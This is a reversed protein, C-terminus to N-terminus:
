ETGKLNCKAIAVQVKQNFAHDCITLELTEAANLISQLQSEDYCHIRSEITKMLKSCIDPTMCDLFALSCFLKSADYGSLTHVTELLQKEYRGVLIAGRNLGNTNRVSLSWVLHVFAETHFSADLHKISMEYMVQLVEPQIDVSQQTFGWLSLSIDHLSFHRARKLCYVQFKRLVSPAIEYRLKGCGWLLTAVDQESFTDLNKEVSEFLSEMVNEYPMYRIQAFSWVVNAVNQPSAKQLKAGFHKQFSLLFDETPRWRLKIFSWLVNSMGQSSFKGMKRTANLEILSLLEDDPRKGLRACSVMINSINQSNCQKLNLKFHAMLEQFLDKPVDLDLRGYSWMINALCQMNMSSMQKWVMYYHSEAFRRSVPLRLKAYAWILLSLSQPQFQTELLEFQNELRKLFRAKPKHGLKAFSWMLLAMDKSNLDDMKSNVLNEIYVRTHMNVEHRTKVCRYIFDAIPGTACKSMCHLCRVECKALLDSPVRIKMLHFCKLMLNMSILDYQRLSSKFADLLSKGVSRDNCLGVRSLSWAFLAQESPKLVRLNKMHFSNLAEYWKDTLRHSLQGFGWVVQVMQPTEVSSSHRLCWEELGKLVRKPPKANTRGLAWVTCTIEQSSLKELNGGSLSRVRDSLAPTLEWGLQAFGGLLVVVDRTSFETSFKAVLTKLRKIAEGLNAYETMGDSESSRLGFKAMWAIARVTATADFSRWHTEAVHAVGYADPAETILRNVTITMKNKEELINESSSSPTHERTSEKERGDLYQDATAGSTEWLNAALQVEYDYDWEIARSTQQTSYSSSASASTQQWAHSKVQYGNQNAPVSSLLVSPRPCIVQNSVNSFGTGTRRSSSANCQSQAPGPRPRRKAVFSRATTTANM